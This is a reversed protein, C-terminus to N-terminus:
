WCLKEGLVKIKTMTRIIKANLELKFTYGRIDKLFICDCDKLDVNYIIGYTHYITCYIDSRVCQFIGNEDLLDISYPVQYFYVIKSDCLYQRITANRLIISKQFQVSNYRTYLFLNEDEVLGCAGLKNVADLLKWTAVDVPILILERMTELEGFLHRDSSMNYAEIPSISRYVKNTSTDFIDFFLENNMDNFFRERFDSGRYREHPLPVVYEELRSKHNYLGILVFM